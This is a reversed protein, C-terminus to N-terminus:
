ACKGETRVCPERQWGASGQGPGRRGQSGQHPRQFAGEQESGGSRGQASQWYSTVLGPHYM